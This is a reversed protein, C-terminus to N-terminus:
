FIAQVTLQGNIPAGPEISYRGRVGSYYVRDFVNNLNFALRYRLKEQRFIKYFVAADVRTYGPVTFTHANDGFRRGVAFAGAGAGFGRLLGKDFEYSTWLSATQRPTGLLQNGVLFFRGSADRTTDETIVADTFAYTLITNWRRVPQANLDFEFGRSQQEGIQISNRPDNPDTALVNARTIQFVAATARLRRRLFDLKVGTEFQEGTEPVFPEGFFNTSTIPQFSRSYSAYLSVPEVPQYVLGVRPTVARDRTQTVRRTFRNDNNQYYYDYRAGVLLKLNDRLAILDQAYVGFSRGINKFLGRLALSSPAFDYVPNYIDINRNAGSLTMSAFSEYNLDLGTVLTHRIGGTNFKFSVDTQWYATQLSQDSNDYSLSLTRNNAALLRPQRSDYDAKNFNTRFASRLNIDPTFFHSLALSGRTQEYKYPIAPDGLYTRISIPAVGSGVAIVGRDILGTGKLGEAEFNLSTNDGLIWTLAPAVFFRERENFDRFTDNHEYAANLRYLLSKSRNLAGGFDIQPRILGFKGGTFQLSYFNDTRPKKTVYNVIGSPDLRGYLISAPGKLIEIREVNSLEAHARNSNFDNRIGDRYTNRSSTFGRITFDEARGGSTNPVTVGSVNRVATEVTIANQDQILQQTVVQISQPTDRLPIDARMATTATEVRYADDDGTVTVFEDFGRPTLRIELEGGARISESFTTFGEASVKIEFNEGGPNLFVFAGNEDTTTTRELQTRAENLTVAANAVADGNQDLVRGGITARGTQATGTTVLLVLSFVLLNLLSNLNHAKTKM